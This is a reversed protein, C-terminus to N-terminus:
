KLHIEIRAEDRLNQLYNQLEENLRTSRLEREIQERVENLPIYSESLRKVIAYAELLRVPKDAVEGPELSLVVDTIKSSIGRNVPGINGGLRRTTEDDSHERALSEFDSGQNLKKLINDVRARADREEAEGRPLAIKIYILGAESTNFDILNDRYYDEIDEESITIEQKFRNGLNQFFKEKVIMAEIYNKLEALTMGSQELFQDVKQKGTKHYQQQLREQIESESVEIGLERAQQLILRENVLDEIIALQRKRLQAPDSMLSPDRMLLNNNVELAYIDEGNVTAAVFSDVLQEESGNSEERNFWFWSFAAALALLLAGYFLLSKIRM